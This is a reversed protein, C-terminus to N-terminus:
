FGCINDPAIGSNGLVSLLQEAEEKSNGILVVRCENGDQPIYVSTESHWGASISYPDRFLGFGSTKIAMPALPLTKKSSYFLGHVTISGAESNVTLTTCGTLLAATASVLVVVELFGGLHNRLNGKPPPTGITRFLGMTLEEGSAM